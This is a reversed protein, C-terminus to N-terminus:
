KDYLGNKNAELSGLLTGGPRGLSPGFSGAQFFSALSARSFFCCVSGSLTHIISLFNKKKSM